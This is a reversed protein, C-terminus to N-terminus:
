RAAILWAPLLAAVGAVWAVTTKVAVGSKRLWYDTAIVGLLGAGSSLLARPPLPVDVTSRSAPDILTLFAVLWAPFIGALGIMWARRPDKAAYCTAIGSALVGAGAIILSALNM